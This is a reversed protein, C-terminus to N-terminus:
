VRMLCNPGHDVPELDQREVSAPVLAHEGGSDQRLQLGVVPDVDGVVEIQHGAGGGSPDDGEPEAGAEGGRFQDLEVTRVTGPDEPM